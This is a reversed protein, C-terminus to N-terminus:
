FPRKRDVIVRRIQQRLVRLRRQSLSLLERCQGLRDVLASFTGVPSFALLRPSKNVRPKRM